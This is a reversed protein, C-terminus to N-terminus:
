FFLINKCFTHYVSIVMHSKKLNISKGLISREVRQTCTLFSACIIYTCAHITNTICTIVPYIHLTCMHTYNFFCINILSPCVWLAYPPAIPWSYITWAAGVGRYWWWNDDRVPSSITKLGLGYGVVFGLSFIGIKLGTWIGLVLSRDKIM